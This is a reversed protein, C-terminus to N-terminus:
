TSLVSEHGLWDDYLDEVYGTGGVAEGTTSARGPRRLLDGGDDGGLEPASKTIVGADDIVVDVFGANARLV